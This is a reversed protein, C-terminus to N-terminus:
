KSITIVWAILYGTHRSSQKPKKQERFYITMNSYLKQELKRTEREMFRRRTPLYLLDTYMSFLCLTIIGGNKMM